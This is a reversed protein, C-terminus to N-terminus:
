SMRAHIAGGKNSTVLFTLIYTPSSRIAAHWTERKAQSRLTTARPGAASANMTRRPVDLLDAIVLLTFPGAYDACIETTGSAIFEDIM